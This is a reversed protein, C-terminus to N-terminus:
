RSVSTILRQRAILHFPDCGYTLFRWSRWMVSWSDTKNQKIWGMRISLVMPLKMIDFDLFIMMWTANQQDYPPLTHGSLNGIGAADLM